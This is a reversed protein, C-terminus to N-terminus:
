VIQKYVRKFKKFLKENEDNTFNEIKKYNIPKQSYSQLRKLGNINDNIIGLLDKIQTLTKIKQKDTPITNKAQYLKEKIYIRYKHLARQNFILKKPTVLKTTTDVKRIFIDNPIVLTKLYEHLKYMRKRRSKYEFKKIAKKEAKTLYRKPLLDLFDDFFVDIDRIKNSLKIVKKLIEHFPESYDIVSYLERTKVRLEHVDDVSTKNLYVFESVYTRYVELKNKLHQADM